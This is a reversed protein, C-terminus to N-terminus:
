DRPAGIAIWRKIVLIQGETLYPPGSAPMRSGSIGAAGALKQVLYSTDANGPTVRVMGPKGRAPMNVLHDYATERSLNMGAAPNRGTSTHCTVCAARGQRDTAEFIDQQISSFTPALNPTPGTLTSM